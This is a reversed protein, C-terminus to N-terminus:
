DRDIDDDCVNWIRDDDFDYQNSNFMYPCNDDWNTVGDCDYDVNFSCSAYNDYVSSFIRIAEDGRMNSFSAVNQADEFTIIWEKYLINLESVPWYWTGIVWFAQFDCASLNYMCYKLWAQFEDNNQAYAVKSDAGDIIDINNQNLVKMQMSNKKLWKKWSKVKSWDILYKQRIQNQIINLVTQYFESKTIMEQGCFNWKCKTSTSPYGAMYWKDGVYAVCYYYSKKNWVGAEYGVDNFDKGDIAKFKDWFNQTYTRKMWDPAQICDQCDAANLLRTVEYRSISNKNSFLVIDLGVESLREAFTSANVCWVGAISFVFSLFLGLYFKKKNKNFM